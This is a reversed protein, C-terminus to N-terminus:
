CLFGNDFYNNESVTKLVITEVRMGEVKHNFFINPRLYYIFLLSM